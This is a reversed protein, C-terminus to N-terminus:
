PRIDLMTFTLPGWRILYPQPDLIQLCVYLMMFVLAALYASTETTWMWRGCSEGYLDQCQLMQGVMGSLFIMDFKTPAIFVPMTALSTGRGLIVARACLLQKLVLAWVLEISPFQVQEPSNLNCEHKTTDIPEAFHFYLRNILPVPLPSNHEGCGVEAASILKGCVYKVLFM